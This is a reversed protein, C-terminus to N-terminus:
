LKKCNTIMCFKPALFPNIKSPYIHIEKIEDINIQFIITFIFHVYYASFNKIFLDFNPYYKLLYFM